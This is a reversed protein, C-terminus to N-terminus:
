LPPTTVALEALRLSGRASEVTAVAGRFGHEGVSGACVLQRVVCVQRNRWLRRRHNRRDCPGSRCLHPNRAGKRKELLEDRSTRDCAPGLGIATLLAICLCKGATSGRGLPGAHDVGMRMGDSRTASGPVGRCDSRGRSGSRQAPQRGHRLPRPRASRDSGQARAGRVRPRTQEGRASQARRDRARLQTELEQVAAGGGGSAAQYTSVM